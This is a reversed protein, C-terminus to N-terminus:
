QHHTRTIFSSIRGFVGHSAEISFRMEPQATNKPKHDVIIDGNIFADLAERIAVQARPNRPANDYMWEQLNIAKTKEPPKVIAQEKLYVRLTEESMPWGMEEMRKKLGQPKLRKPSTSDYNKILESLHWLQEDTIKM